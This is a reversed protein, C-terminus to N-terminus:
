GGDREGARKAFLWVRSVFHVSCHSVDTHVPKFASVISSLTAHKGGARHSLFQPPPINPLLCLPPFSFSSFMSRYPLFLVPVVVAWCGGRCCLCCCHGTPGHNTPVLLLSRSFHIEVETESSRGSQQVLVREEGVVWPVQLERPVFLLARLIQSAPSASNM